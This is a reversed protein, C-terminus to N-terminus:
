MTHLNTVSCGVRFRRIRYMVVIGERGRIHADFSELFGSHCEGIDQM